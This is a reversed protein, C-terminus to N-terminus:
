RGGRRRQSRRWWRRRRRWGLARWKGVWLGAGCWVGARLGAGLGAGLGAWCRLISALADALRALKAGVATHAFVQGTRRNEDGLDGVRVVVRIGTVNLQVRLAADVEVPELEPTPRIGIGPGTRRRVDLETAIGDSRTCEENNALVLRREIGGVRHLEFRLWGWGGVTRM